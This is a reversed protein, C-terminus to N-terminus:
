LSLITARFSWSSPDDRKGTLILKNNRHSVTLDQEQMGAIELRVFLHEHAEFVDAQPRWVAGESPYIWSEVVLRRHMYQLQSM